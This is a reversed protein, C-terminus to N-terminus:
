DLIIIKGSTIQNIPSVLKYYYVGAQFGDIKCTSLIIFSRVELGASNYIKVDHIEGTLNEFTITGSSPNPYVKIDVIKEAEEISLNDCTFPILREYNGYRSHQKDKAIFHYATVGDTALPGITVPLQSYDFTGYEVGNGTLTFGQDGSNEAEFDVKLEYMEEQCSVVQTTFNMFMTISDCNVPDIYTDEKCDEYVNDQVLFEYITTGNGELPGIEVPLNSYLFNGYLAGNGSVSFGDSTNAYDFDILVYFENDDNCPLITAQLEGIECNAPPDCDVPDIATWDSCDEYENDIVVFEYITTGDGVLPGILVPISDYSFSGHNLGSGQVRFGDNGVNVFEFDLWVSFYGQEDCPNVDAYVDWINCDGTIGCDIPGFNLDEACDDFEQDRVLIHYVTSGDGAFPGVEWLPLQDYGYVGYLEYNINLEFSDSVNAYEFNLYAYFMGNSDCPHDDMVLDWIDCEGGGPCEIPDIAAWDSCDEFENDIVVFEYETVGDGLLPGIMVPLDAYEFNGYNNGNGQVRFGETGVNEYWFGLQVYFYEGECDQPFVDVNWITCPGGECYIIGLENYNSCDPYEVDRVVFEYFTVGDGELDYIWVPLDNYEYTGYIIGNGQITFGQSGVNAYEFNIVVDFFGNSDCPLNTAEIAGIECQAQINVLSVASMFTFLFLAFALTKM